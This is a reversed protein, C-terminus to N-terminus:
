LTNTSVLMPESSEKQKSQERGYKWLSVGLATYLVFVAVPKGIHFALSEATSWYFEPDVLVQTKDIFVFPTPLAIVAFTWWFVKKVLIFFNDRLTMRWLLLVFVPLLMVYQHEWVHMYTLFYTLIWLLFLENVYKKSTRVTLLLSFGFVVITWILLATHIEANMMGINQPFQNIYSVWHGGLRLISVAVLAAFGQNGAITEASLGVTFNRALSKVTDPYILFYPVSFAIVVLGAVIISKWKRMKMLVPIFLM